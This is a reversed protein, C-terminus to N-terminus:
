RSGAWFLLVLILAIFIYGFHGEPREPPPDPFRPDRPLDDQM